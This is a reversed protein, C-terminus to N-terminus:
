MFTGKFKGNGFKSSLNASANSVIQFVSKSDVRSYGGLSERDFAERQKHQPKAKEQHMELLTKPRNVRDYDEFYQKLKRKQEEETGPEKPKEVPKPGVVGQRLKARHDSQFGKGQLLTDFFNDDAINNAPGPQDEQDGCTVMSDDQKPKAPGYVQKQAASQPKPAAAPNSAQGKNELASNSPLERKGLSADEHSKPKPLEKNKKAAKSRALEAKGDDEELEPEDADEHASENDSDSDSSESQKKEKKLARKVLNDFKNKLSEYGPPRYYEKDPNKALGLLKFIKKLIKRM